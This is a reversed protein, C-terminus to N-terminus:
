EKISESKYNRLGDMRSWLGKKRDLFPLPLNRFSDEVGIADPGNYYIAYVGNHMRPEKRGGFFSDIWLMMSQTGTIVLRPNHRSHTYSGDGDIYGAIYAYALDGSLDPPTLTKTKRPTINFVRALDYCIENSRLQYRVQPYAKDYGKVHQTAYSINGAGIAARLNEVHQADKAALGVLLQPKGKKAEHVCGDAAIFGAWYCNELNPTSFYDRKYLPNESLFRCDWSCFKTKKTSPNVVIEGFCVECYTGWFQKSNKCKLTCYKAAPHRGALSEECVLCKRDITMMSM